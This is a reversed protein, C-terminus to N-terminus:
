LKMLEYSEAISPPLLAGLVSDFEIWDCMVSSCGPVHMEEGDYVVRVAFSNEKIKNEYLEIMISSAYAPWRGDWIQLASLLPMMPGTDHGMLIYLKKVAKAGTIKGLIENRAAALLPGAAYKGYEVPSPNSFMVQYKWPTVENLKRLVVENVPITRNNCHNVNLCDFFDTFNQLHLKKGSLESIMELQYLLEQRRMRSFENSSKGELAEADLSKLIPFIHHNPLIIGHTRNEVHIDFAHEFHMPLASEDDFLGVLLGQTSSITRSYDTSRVYLEEHEFQESIFGNYAKRLIKGNRMHQRFGYTTLQGIGCNEVGELDNKLKKFFNAAFRKSSPVSVDGVRCKKLQEASKSWCTNKECVNRDGHRLFAFVQALEFGSDAAPPPPIEFNGASHHSSVYPLEDLVNSPLAL